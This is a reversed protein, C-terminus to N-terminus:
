LGEQPGRPAIKKFCAGGLDHESMHFPNIFPNTAQAQARISRPVSPYPGRWM